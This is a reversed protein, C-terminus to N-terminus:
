PMSEINISEVLREARDASLPESEGVPDLWSPRLWLSEGGFNSDSRDFDRQTVPVLAGLLFRGYSAAGTQKRSQILFTSEPLLKLDNSGRALATERQTSVAEELVWASLTM